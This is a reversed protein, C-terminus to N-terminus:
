GFTGTSAITPLHYAEDFTFDGLRTAVASRGIAGAVVLLLLLIFPAHNLRLLKRGYPQATMSPESM